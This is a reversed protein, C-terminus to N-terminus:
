QFTQRFKASFTDNTISIKALGCLLDNKHSMRYTCLANSVQQSLDHIRSKGTLNEGDDPKSKETYKTEENYNIDENGTVNLYIFTPQNSRNNFQKCM